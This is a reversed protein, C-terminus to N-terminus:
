RMSLPPLFIMRRSRSSSIRRASSSAIPLPVSAAPHLGPDQGVRVVLSAEGFVGEGEEPLLTDAHDHMKAVDAKGFRNEREARAPDRQDADVPVVVVVPIAQLGDGAVREVRPGVRLLDVPPLDEHGVGEVLELLLDALAALEVQDEEPVRVPRQRHADPPGQDHVGALRAPEQASLRGAGHDIEVRHLPLM